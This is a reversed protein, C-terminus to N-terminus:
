MKNQRVLSSFTLFFFFFSLVLILSENAPSSSSSSVLSILLSEASSLVSSRGALFFDLSPLSGPTSVLKKGSRSRSSASRLSLSCSLCSHNFFCSSSFLPYESLLYKPNHALIPSSTFPFEDPCFKHNCVFRDTYRVTEPIATPMTFLHLYIKKRQDKYTDCNICRAWSKQSRRDQSVYLALLAISDRLEEFLASLLEM